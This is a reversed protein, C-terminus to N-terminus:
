VTGEPVTRCLLEMERRLGDPTVATIEYDTAGDRVRLAPTVDEAYRLVFRTTGEALILGAQVLERGRLPLREAWAWRLRAWSETQGGYGDATTTKVLLEVRARFRGVKM